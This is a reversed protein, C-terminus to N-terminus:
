WILLKKVIVKERGTLKLMYLAKPLESIDLKIFQTGKLVQMTKVLQGTQNMIDLQMNEAAVDNLVVNLGISAPNPYMLFEMDTNELKPVVRIDSLKYRADIDVLKLRYFLMKSPAAIDIFQYNRQISSNGAAQVQGVNIYVVGDYSREVEFHASNQESKTSWNVLVNAGQRRAAIDIIYIPLVVATTTFIQTATYGSPGGDNIAECAYDYLTSPTLGALNVSPTNTSITIWNSAASEKYRFHYLYAGSVPDCSLIASSSTIGSVNLSIPMAAPIAGTHDLFHFATMSTGSLVYLSNVSALTSALGWGSYINVSDVWKRLGTNDYKVTIMRLYQSGFLTYMPGGKGTVFVEGNAKASIFYPQEDNGATENYRTNWIMTGDIDTQFTIWDFYSAAINGYAIISLKNGVNTFRTSTEAGGFDFDKKWLQTGSADFKYLEVDMLSTPSVQNDYATLLYVNGADDIEVDTGGRGQVGATWLLTGTTDWVAVPALSLNGSSATLVIKDGKLRMSSFYKPANIDSNQTFLINGDTDLKILAFGPLAGVGCAGIYLNGNVDLECRLSMGVLINVPSIVKKWLEAGLPDYKVIIIAVPSGSGAYRYGAVFVNDSNDTTVWLPKEYNGPIGSASMAEWQLVGFKNHKRTFMNYSTWYGTTIVNDQNDRAIMVGIKQYADAPRIWDTSYQASVNTSLLLLFATIKYIKKM